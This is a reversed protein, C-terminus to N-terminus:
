FYLTLYNNMKPNTIGAKYNKCNYYLYRTKSLIGPPVSNKRIM